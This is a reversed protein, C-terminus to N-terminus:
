PHREDHVMRERFGWLHLRPLDHGWINILRYAEALDKKRIINSPVLTGGQALAMMKDIKVGSEPYHSSFILNSCMLQFARYRTILKSIPCIHLDNCVYTDIM